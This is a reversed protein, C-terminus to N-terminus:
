LDGRRKIYFVEFCMLLFVMSLLLVDLSFNRERGEEELIDAAKEKELIGKVNIGSEKEDQKRV